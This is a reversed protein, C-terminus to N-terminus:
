LGASVEAIVRRLWAHAPSAHTREHWVQGVTGRPLPLPPPLLRLPYLRAFTAAVRGSVAAIYDTAAVVAPVMLFHSLRLAVHRQLGRAALAVDAVGASGPEATVLIHHLRVYAKLTLRKGIGPHNKRVICVFDDHFLKEERHNAPVGPYFGLSLDAEGTELWPPTRHYPWSRIQLQVGPAERALRGLLRPLLMLEVFDTAALVFTNEARAPDFAHEGGLASELTALASRLPGVLAQARATPIM